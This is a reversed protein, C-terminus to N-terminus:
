YIRAGELPATSLWARAADLEDKRRGLGYGALKAGRRRNRLPARVCAATSGAGTKSADRRAIAGHGALSPSRSGTGSVFPVDDQM